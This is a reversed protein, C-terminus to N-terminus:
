KFHEILEKVNAKKWGSKYSNPSNNVFAFQELTDQDCFIWKDPLHNGYFDTWGTSYFWQYKDTKNNLASIALFLEENNECDILTEYRSPKHVCEFYRGAMGACYLIEKEGWTREEGGWRYGINNLKERLEPTNKNIFCSNTFM